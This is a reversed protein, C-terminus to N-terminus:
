ACSLLVLMATYAWVTNEPYLLVDVHQELEFVLQEMLIVHMHRPLQSLGLVHRNEYSPESGSCHSSPHSHQSIIELVRQATISLGLRPSYPISSPPTVALAPSTEEPTGMSRSATPADYPPYSTVVDPYSQLTDIQLFEVAHEITEEMVQRMSDDFDDDSSPPDSLLSLLMEMTRQASGSVHYESIQVMFDRLAAIPLPPRRIQTWRNRLSALDDESVLVHNQIGSWSPKQDVDTLYDAPPRTATTCGPLILRPISVLTFLITWVIVVPLIVNGLRGDLSNAFTYLGTLVLGISLHALIEQAVVVTLMRRRATSQKLQMLRIAPSYTPDYSTCAQFHRQLIPGLSASAIGCILSLFWIANTLISSASLSSNSPDSSSSTTGNLFGSVAASNPHPSPLGFSLTYNITLLQQVLMVLQMNPDPQLSQYSM